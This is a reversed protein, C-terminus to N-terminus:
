GLRVGPSSTIRGRDPISGALARFLATKGSGDPGVISLSTGEPVNFTLDRFVETAGFSVSLAEVDLASTM